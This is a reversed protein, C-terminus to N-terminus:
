KKVPAIKWVKGSKGIIQSTNNSFVYLEGDADEGFAPITFRLPGQHSEPTLKEIKWASGKPSVKTAVFLVGDAVGMNRSWDGFVYKGKLAPIASGRYIYGGTISIGLAGPDNAFTRYSKYEFIPDLLPSGDKAVHPGDEPQSRPDERNLPHFGERIPWGYNGGNKIIDVEEYLDQGIDAAYLEGTERDFSIRWPNRMGWAYIEPRGKGNKFPNDSPIGLEGPKSVDVRLIKGLLKQLDQGNGEPSHGTHNPEDRDCGPGGGGDGVGAYLYGDKGFAISGANHNFYPHDIELLKKESDLRAAGIEANFESLTWTHNWNEPVNARRPAAYVVFFRGNKAYDPHLAFGLLGREDFSKFLEVMKSTLDLWPEIEGGPKVRYIIGVQDAVLLNPSNPESVLATPSVFGEAVKELTVAPAAAARFAISAALLAILISKM